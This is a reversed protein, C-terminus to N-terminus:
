AQPIEVNITKGDTLHFIFSSTESDYTINEIGVGDKGDIGNDGKDGKAGSDGKDGKDGKAGDAGDAGKLSNLWELETGEFGNKIAIDYASDGKIGVGGSGSSFGGTFSM